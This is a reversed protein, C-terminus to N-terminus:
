WRSREPVGLFIIKGIQSGSVYNPDQNKRLGDSNSIIDGEIEFLFEDKDFRRTTKIQLM